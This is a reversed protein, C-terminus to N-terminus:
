PIPAVPLAALMETVWSLRRVGRLLHSVLIAQFQDHAAPLHDNVVLHDFSGCERLQVHAERVRRLIVEEPDTSRARLRRELVDLSPPLVFISVADPFAERVLAAGRTDVDLLVSDGRALAAEVPARPTGYRNGYIATWELLAGEALWRDFVEASVYTYDVGDQEGPRMARTTASVSFVLHPLVGLAEKVLTTKGTGSTGTVVFLAGRDPKQWGTLDLSM